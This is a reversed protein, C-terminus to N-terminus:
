QGAGEENDMDKTLESLSDGAKIADVVRQESPPRHVLEYVLEIEEPTLERDFFLKTTTVPMPVSQSKGGFSLVPDHKGDVWQLEGEAPKTCAALAARAIDDAPQGGKENNAIRALVSRLRANEEWVAKFGRFTAHTPGSWYDLVDAPDRRLSLRPWKEKALKEFAERVESM